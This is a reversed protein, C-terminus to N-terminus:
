SSPDDPDVFEAIGDGVVFEGDATVSGIDLDLAIGSLLVKVYDDIGIEGEMAEATRESGFMLAFSVNISDSEDGQLAFGSGQCREVLCDGVQAVQLWGDGVNDLIRRVDSDEASALREPERSMHTLLQELDSQRQSASVVYGDKEFIAVAAPFSRGSCEWMEFGRYDDDECGLGDDLEERIDDFEFDGKAIWLTDDGLISEFVVAFLEIHEDDMGIDETTRPDEGGEEIFEAYDELGERNTFARYDEITVFRADGPVYGLVSGGGSEGGGGDGFTGTLLLLVVVIAAVLGAAGGGVIGLMKGSIPFGGGAPGAQPQHQSQQNHESNGNAAM